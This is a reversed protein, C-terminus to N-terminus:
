EQPVITYNVTHRRRHSQMARQREREYKDLYITYLNTNGIMAALEAITGYEICKDMFQPTEPDVAGSPTTTPVGYYYMTYTASTITPYFTLSGAFRKYYLPTQGAVASLPRGLLDFDNISLEKLQFSYGSPMVILKGRYFGSPEAVTSSAVTLSATSKELCLTDECLRYAIDGMTDLFLSEPVRQLLGSLGDSNLGALAFEVKGLIQKTRDGTAM